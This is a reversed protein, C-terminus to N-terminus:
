IPEQRYSLESNIAHRSNWIYHCLKVKVSDYHQGKLEKMGNHWLWALYSAPVDQLYEGQHKGWPMVATDDFCPELHNENDQADKSM